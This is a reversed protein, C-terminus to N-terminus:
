FHYPPFFQKGRDIEKSLWLNSELWVLLQIFSVSVYEIMVSKGCIIFEQM